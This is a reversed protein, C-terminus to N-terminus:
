FTLRSWATDCLHSAAFDSVPMSAVGGASEVDLAQLAGSAFPKWEPLGQANPNGTRAFSTWYGVMAQKLKAREANGLDAMNFLYPLEAAHAAGQPFSVVYRGEITGVIPLATQDRFEYMYVPAGRSAIRRSVNLGNCSFTSDTGAAAMALTPRLAEDAGFRSLPYHSDTLDAAPVGMQGSMARAGMVYVGASMLFSRDQPDLKPPNAATRRGLETIAMFLLNEDENSGNVVPVRNDDGSAFIEKISRPLVKGDVSPIPNAVASAYAAMLPGRVVPEPLARLCEATVGSPCAEALAATMQAKALAAEGRAENQAKTLQDNVGYAGSQIIAKDFLGKSRSSALHTLVSFGGASEGFITVNSPDGGFSAINSRVWALAAQQDMMGYNGVDGDADRLAPHALFGAAGLRYNIAVVIVGRATLDSPDAYGSAGGTQFAGGHIWVMVPFPGKGEPAHVDLYLCDESDGGARFPSGGTQLCSAGSVTEARAVSWPTPPAPPRWRLDGVPPAAYPIAFFSRMAGRDVGTVSGYATSVTLDSASAGGEPYGAVGLGACASLAVASVLVCSATAARGVLSFGRSM